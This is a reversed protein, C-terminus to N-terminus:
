MILALTTYMRAMEHHGTGAVQYLMSQATRAMNEAGELSGNALQRRAADHYRGAIAIPSAPLSHKIVPVVDVIDDASFPSTATFEFDRAVLRLGLKQCLRRLAATRSIPAQSKGDAGYGGNNWLQLSYRFKSKVVAAIEEWVAARTLKFGAVREVLKMSLGPLASWPSGMDGSGSDGVGAGAGAGANASGARPGSRGNARRKRAGGRGGRGNTRGPSTPERAASGDADSDGAAGLVCNLLAAIAAAPAARVLPDRMIRRFLRKCARVVMESEFLAVLRPSQETSGRQASVLEALRGLYRHGAALAHTM